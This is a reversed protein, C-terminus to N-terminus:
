MKDLFTECCWIWKIKGLETRHNVAIEADVELALRLTHLAVLLGDVYSLFVEELDVAVNIFIDFIQGSSQWIYTVIM